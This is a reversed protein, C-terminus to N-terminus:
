TRMLWTPSPKDANANRQARRWSKDHKRLFFSVTRSFLQRIKSTKLFSLFLSLPSFDTNRKRLSWITKRWETFLGNSEGAAECWLLVAGKKQGNLLEMWYVGTVLWFICLFFVPFLSLKIGDGDKDFSASPRRTNPLRNMVSSSRWPSLLKPLALSPLAGKLPKSATRKKEALTRALNLAKIRLFLGCASSKPRPNHVKGHQYRIRQGEVEQINRLKRPSCDEWGFVGEVLWLLKKKSKYKHALPQTHIFYFCDHM